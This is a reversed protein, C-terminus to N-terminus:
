RGKINHKGCVLSQSEISSPRCKPLADPHSHIFSYSEEPALTRSDLTHTSTEKSFLIVAIYELDSDGINQIAHFDGDKCQMVDGPGLEYYVGNDDVGAHGRIIYYTEFDGQHVHKGTSCGPPIITTAFLRGVGYMEENRLLHAIRITGTGGMVGTQEVVVLENHKKIM